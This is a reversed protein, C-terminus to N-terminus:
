DAYVVTLVLNYISYYEGPSGPTGDWDFRLAGSALAYPVGPVAASILTSDPLYLFGDAGSPTITGLLFDPAGSGPVCYVDVHWDGYDTYDQDHELTLRMSVIPRSLQKTALTGIYEWFYVPGPRSMITGGARTTGTGPCLSCTESHM